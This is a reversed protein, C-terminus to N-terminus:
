SDELDAFFKITKFIADVQKWKEKNEQGRRKIELKEREIQENIPKGKELRNVQKHLIKIQKSQNETIKRLLLQSKYSQKLSHRLSIIGIILSIVTVFLGILAVWINIDVMYLM